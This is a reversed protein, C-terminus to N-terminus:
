QYYSKNKNIKAASVGLKTGIGAVPSVSLLGGCEQGTQGCIQHQLEFMRTTVASERHLPLPFLVLLRNIIVPPIINTAAPQVCRGGGADVEVRM